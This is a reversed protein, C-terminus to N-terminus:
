RDHRLSLSLSVAEGLPLIPRRRQCLRHTSRDISRDIGVAALTCATSGMSCYVLVSRIPSPGDAVHQVQFYSLRVEFNM